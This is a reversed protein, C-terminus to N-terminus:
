LEPIQKEHIQHRLLNSNPENYLIVLVQLKSAADELEPDDWNIRTPTAPTRGM